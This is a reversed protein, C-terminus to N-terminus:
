RPSSTKRSRRTNASVARALAVREGATPSEQDQLRRLRKYSKAGNKDFSELVKPKLEGRDGRALAFNEMDDDDDTDRGARGGRRRGRQRQRRAPPKYAAAPGTAAPRFPTAAARRRPAAVAHTWFAPARRAPAM